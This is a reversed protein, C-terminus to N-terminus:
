EIGLIEEVHTLFEEEREGTSHVRQWRYAASGGRPREQARCRVSVTCYENDRSVRISLSHREKWNEDLLKKSLVSRANRQSWGELWGTKIRGDEKDIKELPMRDLAIV